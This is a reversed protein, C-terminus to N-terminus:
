MNLVNLERNLKTFDIKTSDAVLLYRIILDHHDSVIYHDSARRWCNVHPELMAVIRMQENNERAGHAGHAGHAYDFSTKLSDSCYIGSGYKQGNLMWETNSMNKLGNRIISYWNECNSGHYLFKPTGTHKSAFQKEKKDSNIVKFIRVQSESIEFNNSNVKTINCTMMTFKLFVFSEGLMNHLISDCKLSEINDICAGVINDWRSMISIAHEQLETQGLHSYSVPMPLFIMKWRESQVASVALDILLRSAELDRLIKNAIINGDDRQEISKLCKPKACIRSKGSVGCVFCKM